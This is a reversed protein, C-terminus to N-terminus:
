PFYKYIEKQVWRCRRKIQENPLLDCDIVNTACYSELIKIFREQQRSNTRHLDVMGATLSKLPLKLEAFDIQADIDWDMQYSHIFQAFIGGNNLREKALTFFDHTFLAALGAMWPNSPESIIVDYSRNTLQLHARGDQVILETIPNSLVRYNWDDFFRSAEVVQPNSELV